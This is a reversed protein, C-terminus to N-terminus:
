CSSSFSLSFTSTLRVSRMLRVPSISVNLVYTGERRRSWTLREKECATHATTEEAHFREWPMRWWSHSANSWEEEEEKGEEEEEEKQNLCTTLVSAKPPSSSELTLLQLPLWPLKPGLQTLCVWILVPCLSSAAEGNDTIFGMIEHLFSFKLNQACALFAWLPDHGKDWPKKPLSCLLKKRQLTMELLM